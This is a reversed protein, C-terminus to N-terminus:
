IILNGSQHNPFRPLGLNHVPPMGSSTQQQHFMGQNNMTQNRGIGKMHYMGRGHHSRQMNNRYMDGSNSPNYQGQMMNPPPVSYNQNPRNMNQKMDNQGGPGQQQQQQQQPQQQKQSNMIPAIVVEGHDYPCYEALTCIGKEDFDKCRKKKNVNADGTRPSNSRSRSFSRSRSRRFYRRSTEPSSSSSSSTSDVGRQTRNRTRNKHRDRGSRSRSRTSKKLNSDIEQYDRSLRSRNFSGGGSQRSNYNEFRRNM